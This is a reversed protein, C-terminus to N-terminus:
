RNHPLSMVVVLRLVSSGIVSRHEYEFVVELYVIKTLRTYDLGLFLILLNRVDTVRSVM